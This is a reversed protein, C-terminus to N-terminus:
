GDNSVLEFVDSHLWNLYIDRMYVFVCIQLPNHSNLCNQKYLNLQCYCHGSFLVSENENFELAIAYLIPIFGDFWICYLLSNM